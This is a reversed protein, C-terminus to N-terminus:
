HRVLPQVGSEPQLTVHEIGYSELLIRQARALIAPWQAGDALSLHASLAVSDPGMQWVHLDHVETIGAIRSLARGIADYDLHRPVGEM